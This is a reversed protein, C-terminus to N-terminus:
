HRSYNSELEEAAEHGRQMQTTLERQLTRLTGIKARYDLLTNLDAPANELATLFHDLQAAIVPALTRMITSAGAGALAEDSLIGLAEPTHAKTRAVM